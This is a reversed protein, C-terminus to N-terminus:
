LPLTFYFTAGKNEEAEAWIRGGHKTIIRHAIALGVGTGDFEDIRHLRQFVGFLKQAYKMNFGVGNDKVYYVTETNNITSGIEIEPFETKGTYKLANSLLNIWVQKILQVDCRAEPLHHVTIKKDQNSTNADLEQLVIAVIANMDVTKVSLNVRGTRSFQLVDDIMRAMRLSYKKVEELLEKGDTDLAQSYKKSLISTYGNIIKLPSRLDHSVSYSFTELEKNLETLQATREEIKKELSENLQKIEQEALKVETVDQNFGTVLIPLGQDNRKVELQSRIYRVRGSPDTVRFDIRSKNYKGAKTEAIQKRLREIDDAHVHKLMNESNAEVQGPQYGFLRYTEESWRTTGKILDTQWSGIHALKETEKLLQEDDQSQTAIRKNEYDLKYKELVNILAGPLRKLRDKLIYDDAGQKMVSVAFEESVTATVLIFPIQPNDKRALRLAEMSNFSPLSHDSLIVDPRFEILASIFQEPTDVLKKEFKIGSKELERDVLESDYLFDELHLIKITDSMM